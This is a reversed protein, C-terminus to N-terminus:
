GAAVRAAALAADYDPHETVEPVIQVYAIRGDRGVVWVSLRIVQGIAVAM